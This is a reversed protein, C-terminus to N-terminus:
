KGDRPPYLASNAQVCMDCQLNAVQQRNSSTLVSSCRLRSTETVLDISRGSYRRISHSRPFCEHLCINYKLVADIKTHKDTHTQTKRLALYQLLTYMQASSLDIETTGNSGLVSQTLRCDQRGNLSHTLQVALFWLSHNSEQIVRSTWPAPQPSGLGDCYCCWM